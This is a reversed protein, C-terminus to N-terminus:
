EEDPYGCGVCTGNELMEGCEPCVTELTTQAEDEKEPPYVTYLLDRIFGGFSRHPGKLTYIEEYVDQPIKISQAPSQKAM